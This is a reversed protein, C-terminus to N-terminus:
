SGMLTEQFNYQRPNTEVTEEAVAIFLAALFADPEEGHTGNDLHTSSRMRSAHRKPQRLAYSRICVAILRNSSFEFLLERSQVDDDIVPGDGAELLHDLARFHAHM